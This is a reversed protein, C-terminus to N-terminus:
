PNVLGGSLFKNTEFYCCLFGLTTATMKEQTFGLAVLFYIMSNIICNVM